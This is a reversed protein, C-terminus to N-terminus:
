RVKKTRGRQEQREVVQAILKLINSDGEVKVHGTEFAAIYDSVKGRPAGARQLRSRPIAVTVRADQTPRRELDEPGPVEVRFM